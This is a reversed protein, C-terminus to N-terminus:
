TGRILTEILTRNRTVIRQEPIWPPSIFYESNIYELGPAGHTYEFDAKLTATAGPAIHASAQRPSGGIHSGGSLLHFNVMFRGGQKDTNKITVEFTHYIGKESNQEESLNSSVGQYTAEREYTEIEEVPVMPVAFLVVIIAVIAVAGVILKKSKKAKRLYSL